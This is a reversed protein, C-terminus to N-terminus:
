DLCLLCLMRRSRTTGFFTLDKVVCSRWISVVQETNSPLSVVSGLRQIRHCSNLLSPKRPSLSPQLCLFASTTLHPPRVRPVVNESADALFGFIMALLLASASSYAAANHADSAFPTWLMIHSLWHQDNVCLCCLVNDLSMSDSFHPVDVHRM